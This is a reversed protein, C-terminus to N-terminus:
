GEEKGINSEKIQEKLKDVETELSNIKSAQASKERRLDTRDQRLKLNETLLLDYQAALAAITIKGDNVYM